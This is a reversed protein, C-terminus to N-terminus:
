DAISVLFQHSLVSLVSETVLHLNIFSQVLELCILHTRVMQDALMLMKRDLKVLAVDIDIMELVCIVSWISLYHWPCMVRCLCKVVNEEPLRTM